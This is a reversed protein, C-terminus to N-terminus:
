SASFQFASRIMSPDCPYPGACRRTRPETEWATTVCAGQETSTTRSEAALYIPVLM